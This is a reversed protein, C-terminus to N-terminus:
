AAKPWPLKEPTTGLEDAIATRLKTSTIEGKLTKCIAAPSVGAKKAISRNTIKREVLKARIKNSM